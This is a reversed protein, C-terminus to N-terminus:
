TEEEWREVAIGSECLLSRSFEDPYPHRYVIRAIGANIINQHLHRLAPPHLLPYGRRHMRGDPGGPHRRETRRSHRLVAGGAPHGLSRAFDGAPVGGAGRLKFAGGARRQLRHDSNTQGYSSRGVQRRLCSSWGAVVGAVEIFRGDWKDMRLGERKEKGNFEVAIHWSRGAGLNLFCSFELSIVM